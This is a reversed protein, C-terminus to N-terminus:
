QFRALDDLMEVSSSCVIALVKKMTGRHFKKKRQEKGLTQLDNPSLSFLSGRQQRRRWVRQQGDRAEGFLLVYITNKRM